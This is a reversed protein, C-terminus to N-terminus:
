GCAVPSEFEPWWIKGVSIDGFVGFVHREAQKTQRRHVILALGSCLWLPIVADRRHNLSNEESVIWMSQEAEAWHSCLGKGLLIRSFFHVVMQGESNQGQGGLGEGIRSLVRATHYSSGGGDQWSELLTEHRGPTHTVRVTARILWGRCDLASLSIHSTMTCFSLQAWAYTNTTPLLSLIVPHIYCMEALASRGFVLFSIPVCYHFSYTHKCKEKKM